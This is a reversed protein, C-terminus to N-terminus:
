SRDQDESDAVVALEVLRSLRARRGAEVLVPMRLVVCVRAASSSARAESKPTREPRRPNAKMTTTKLAPALLLSPLSRCRSRLLGPRVFRVPARFQSNRRLVSRARLSEFWRRRGTRRRDARRRNQVLDPALWEKVVVIIAATFGGFPFRSIRGRACWHSVYFIRRQRLAPMRQAHSLSRHSSYRVM